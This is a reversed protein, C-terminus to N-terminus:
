SYLSSRAVFVPQTSGRDRDRDSATQDAALHWYAFLFGMSMWLFGQEPDPYWNGGTFALVLMGILSARSGAFFARLTPSLDHHGSLRDMAKLSRFYLYAIAIFGLIGIDLLIQLYMNHPHMSSYVGSTVAYSWLTSEIGRGFVPSRLVDPLLHLWASFRGSTLEYFREGRYGSSVEDAGQFMRTRWEDPAVLIAVALLIAMILFVGLSKRNWLFIAITVVVALMGARAFNFVTGCFIVLAILGFFLSPMGDKQEYKAFAVYLMPGFALAFLKGYSNYHMGAESIVMRHPGLAVGKSLTFAVVYAIVVLASLAFLFVFREPRRSDVLANALLVSFVILQASRYLYNKTYEYLGLSMNPYIKLLNSAGENLHPIALVYGITLPLVMCLWFVRPPWVFRKEHNLFKRISLGLVGCVLAYTNPNLGRPQPVLESGTLPIIFILLIVAVRYDYLVLLSILVPFLILLGFGGVLAMALGAFLALFVAVLFVAFRM